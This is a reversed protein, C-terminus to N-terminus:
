RVRELWWARVDLRESHLLHPQGELTVGLRDALTNEAIEAEARRLPWPTHHIHGRYVRGTKDASYLALRNTLWDELTGPAAQFEPGVPHYAAAFRGAPADAQTRASAYRTVGNDRQMWMQALNYPLHFFTRALLVPLAEPIDLSYFWVGPVGDVTVYTRLNLEPFASLRPVDPALRPAVGSMRFPVVGLYAQGGRTDVEVGAPLTRAIMEPNVAWHLFCLDHWQMRLIWPGRAPPLPSPGSSIM